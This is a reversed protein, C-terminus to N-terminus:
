RKRWCCTKRVPWFTNGRSMASRTLASKSTLCCILSVNQAAEEAHQDAVKADFRASDLTRLEEAQVNAIRQFEVCRAEAARASEMHRVMEKHSADRACQADASAKAYHKVEKRAKVLGATM